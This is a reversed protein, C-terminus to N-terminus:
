TPWSVVRTTASPSRSNGKAQSKLKLGSSTIVNGGAKKSDLLKMGISHGTSHTSSRSDGIWVNQDKLLEIMKNFEIEAAGLQCCMIEKNRSGDDM